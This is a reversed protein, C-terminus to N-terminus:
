RGVDAASEAPATSYGYGYGPTSEAARNLVVGAVPFDSLLHLAKTLEDRGTLGQSAVVLMADIKPAVVLADDTLLVPPLDILVIPNAVGEKVVRLLEDFHSSALLESARETSSASGAILLNEEGITFFADRLHNGQELSIRLERPPSVGLTRCVSPKRMDLDLLVVDRSRERAVSIALNIATLTKGDNPGASTLAITTWKNTRVRQLLRTRLMRYAAVAPADADDSGDLLVRQERCQRRDLNARQSVLGKDPDIAARLAQTEALREADADNSRRNNSRQRRDGRTKELAQEIISM